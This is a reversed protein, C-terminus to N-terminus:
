ANGWQTKSDMLLSDGCDELCTSCIFFEKYIVRMYLAVKMEVNCLSCRPPDDQTSHEFGTLTAQSDPGYNHEPHVNM